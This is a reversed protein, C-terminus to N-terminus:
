DHVVDSANRNQYKTFFIKSQTSQETTKDRTFGIYAVGVQGDKM